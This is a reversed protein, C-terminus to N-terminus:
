QDINKTCMSDILRQFNGKREKDLSCYFRIPDKRLMTMKEDVYSPHLKVGPYIAELLYDESCGNLLILADLVKAAM